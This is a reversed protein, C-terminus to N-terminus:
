RPADLRARIRDAVNDLDDIDYRHGTPWIQGFGDDRWRPVVHLHAHFVTQEAASGASTILNMGHPALAQEIAHGVHVIAHMLTASVTPDAIDWLDAHHRTPIVLTHGPTAPNLPFLAIWTDTRAIVEAPAEGSVIRCFECTPDPDGTM